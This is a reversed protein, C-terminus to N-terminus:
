FTQEHKSSEPDRKLARGMRKGPLVSKPQPEETSLAASAQMLKRLALSSFYHALYIVAWLTASVLHLIVVINKWSATIVQLLYGSLVMIIFLPILLIGSKRATKGDAQLKALIHSNVLMGIALVLFPAAIIHTDMMYPEWPHNVVSFPDNSKMLYHMYAYVLGTITVLITTVHTFWAEL